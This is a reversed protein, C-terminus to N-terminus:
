FGYLPLAPSPQHRGDEAIHLRPEGATLCVLRGLFFELFRHHPLCEHRESSEGFVEKAVLILLLGAQIAASM